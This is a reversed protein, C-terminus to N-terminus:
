ALLCVFGKFECLRGAQEGSGREKEIVCLWSRSDERGAAEIEGIKEGGWSM